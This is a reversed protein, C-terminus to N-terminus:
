RRTPAARPHPTLTRAGAYLPSLLSPVCELKKCFLGQESEATGAWAELVEAVVRAELEPRADAIWTWTEQGVAISAETFLRVPLAVVLHLIEFNPQLLLLADARRADSLQM